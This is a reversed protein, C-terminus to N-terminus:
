TPRSRTRLLPLMQWNLSPLCIACSVEELVVLHWAHVTLLFQAAIMLLSLSLAISLGVELAPRNLRMLGVVTWGPVLMAFALGLTFRVSGDVGALALVFVALDVVLLIASYLARTRDSRM